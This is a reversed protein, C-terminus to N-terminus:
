RVGTSKDSGFISGSFKLSSLSYTFSWLFSSSISFDASNVSDKLLAINMCYVECIFGM